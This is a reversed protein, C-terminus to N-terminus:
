HAGERTAHGFLTQMCRKRAEGKVRNFRGGLTNSVRYTRKPDQVAVGDRHAPSAEVAVGGRGNQALWARVRDVQTPPALVVLEGTVVAMVEALLADLTAPFQPGAVIQEIEAEVAALVAEVIDNKMSLDARAAEGEALQRRFRDLDDKETRAALLTAERQAVSKAHADALIVDKEANAGSLREACAGAIQRSMTELLASGKM